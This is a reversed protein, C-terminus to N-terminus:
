TIKLIKQAFVQAGDLKTQNKLNTSAQTFEEYKKFITTIAKLLTNGTIVGRLVIVAGTKALNAAIKKQESGWELPVVIAVKGLAALEATTNAGSRCIILNARLFVAGADAAGVFESPLYKDQLNKPLKAKLQSLRSFDASKTLNGTQHIVFAFKLIKDIVTAVLNNLFSSGVAGGTIYILKGQDVKALFERLNASKPKTNFIEERLLPGTFVSKNNGIKKFLAVDAIGKLKAFKFIIKNALGLKPTQEHAIVPIRALIAALAVPIAVYGGFTLIVDPKIRTLLMVSKLLGPFIKFLSLLTYKTIRRQIRGAPIEFFPIGLNSIELFEFSDAADGEVAQRRGFFYFQTKPALKALQEIVALAPILHGGTVVIKMVIM